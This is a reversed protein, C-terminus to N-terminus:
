SFVCSCDHLKLVKDVFSIKGRKMLVICKHFKIQDEKEIM